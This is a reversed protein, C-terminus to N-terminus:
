EPAHGLEPGYVVGTQLYASGPRSILSGLWGFESRRWFFQACKLRRAQWPTPAAAYRVTVHWPTGEGPVATFVVLRHRPQLQYPGATPYFIVGPPAAGAPPKPEYPIPDPYVPRQFGARTEVAAILLLTKRSCNSLAFTSASQGSYNTFGIFSLTLWDQRALPGPTLIASFLLGVVVCAAILLFQRAARPAQPPMPASITIETGCEECHTADSPSNHGCYACTKVDSWAAM